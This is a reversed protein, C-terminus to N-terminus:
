YGEARYTLQPTTPQDNAALLSRVDGIGTLEALLFATTYHAVLDHASTRDWAPDSCFATESLGLVIRPAACGGAFLLHEAGELSVEVKRSTAAHEFAAGTGWEFPSDRDATGGIALVPVTLSALGDAGFMLADGALAVVADVRPDAWSPWDRSPVADLGARAALEDLHPALSDCQLALAGGPRGDSECAAQLEATNLRAGGAALAAFGGYSHGVVAASELDVLGALPEGPGSERLVTDLAASVERPRDVTARWLNQPDLSEAHHVAAVVFGHSALHEALWGYTTAGMAFGPSLVVVPYPGGSHDPAAGPVARGPYTALAVTTGSNLPSIGYAYRVTVTPIGASPDVHSGTDKGHLAPYWVTLPTPAQAASWRRFGVPHSGEDALSVEASRQADGDWRPSPTFELLAATTHLSVGLAVTLVLTAGALAARAISSARGM